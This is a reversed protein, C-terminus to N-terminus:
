RTKVHVTKGRAEGNALLKDVAELDLQGGRRAAYEVIGTGASASPFQVATFHIIGDADLQFIAGIPVLRNEPPSVPLSLEGLCANKEPDSEEGRFVRMEVATQMPRNTSGALGMRCPYPTQRPIIAQFVLRDAEDLMDVGFSHATVDNIGLELPRLDEEPASLRAAVIAAGHSVAEDVREAIYPDKIERAVVERVARSKTSGGVLIVRDIQSPTLKADRMTSRVCEVTRQLFPAILQNYEALSIELELARGLCDPVSIVAQNSESLEIKAAEAAEKLRQRAVMAERSTLGLLDIGSQASFKESAWKVIAEDFDDGGLQSDGGVAIVQFNNRKVSLISVDFTGGGLDYVMLTQDKGKDLGYAIAAATPEPVLRLVTLGAQEGARRTDERQADNFYAPVTIVAETIKEKLFTSAAESLRKLVISGIDVPSLTRNDVQYTKSRNGMFRKASGVTRQPDIARRSKASRGVLVAGDDMFSVVSPLLPRGDVPITEALGRRFVAVV